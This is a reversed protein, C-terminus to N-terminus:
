SVPIKIGKREKEWCLLISPNMGVEESFVGCFRRGENLEQTHLLNEFGTGFALSCVLLCIFSNPLLHCPNPLLIIYLCVFSFFGLHLKSSLYCPFPYLFSNHEVVCFFLPSIFCCFKRQWKLRLISPADRYSEGASVPSFM